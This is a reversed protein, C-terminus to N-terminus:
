GRRNGARRAARDQRAQRRAPGQVCGAPRSQGRDVDLIRGAGGLEPKVWIVGRSVGQPLKEFPSKSQRLKDLKDRLMGHTKQTFGTGTRGAYILKDERYYGLILAGVGHIGNSPLTFGGIVFEQEQDCKLKLWSGGRGPSYKGDGLKSIIGEAGLKCASAFIEGADGTLHESM